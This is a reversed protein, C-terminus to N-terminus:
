LALSEFLYTRFLFLVQIPVRSLLSILLRVILINSVTLLAESAGHLWDTDALILDYKAESIVGGFIGAAVFILLYQFGFLVLSKSRNGRFRLFYLFILYPFLSVQFFKGAVSQITDASAFLLSSSQVTTLGDNLVADMIEPSELVTLKSTAM